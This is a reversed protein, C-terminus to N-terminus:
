GATNFIQSKLSWETFVTARAIGLEYFLRIPLREDPSKHDFVTSGRGLWRKEVIFGETEKGFIDKRTHPTATVWYNKNKEMYRHIWDDTTHFDSGRSPYMSNWRVKLLDKFLSIELQKKAAKRMAEDNDPWAVEGSKINEGMAKLKGWDNFVDARWNQNATIMGDFLEAMKTRAEALAVSFDGASPGKDKALQQFLVKLAGSVVGAGKFGAGGVAGAVAQLASNLLLQVVNNDDLGVLAGVNNVLGANSIFVNQIFSEVRAFYNTALERYDIEVRLQSVVTEWASQPIDDPKKINSLRALTLLGSHPDFGLQIGIYSFARQEDDTFVPFNIGSVTNLFTFADMAVPFGDAEKVKFQSVAQLSRQTAVSPNICLPHEAPLAELVFRDCGDYALIFPYIYQGPARPGEVPVPREDLSVPEAWVGWRNKGISEFSQFRFTHRLLSIPHTTLHPHEDEGDAIIDLYEGDRAMIRWTGNFAIEIFTQNPRLQVRDM